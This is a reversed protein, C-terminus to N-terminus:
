QCTAGARAQCDLKLNQLADLFLTAVTLDASTGPNLGAAKLAADHTLLAARAGEGLVLRGLAAEAEARMTEAAAAGFKRAVHSDPFGTLFALHVATTTWPEALGRGRAAALASLGTGFLDEFGTVYARA